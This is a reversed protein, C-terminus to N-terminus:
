QPAQDQRLHGTVPDTVIPARRDTPVDQTNDQATAPDLTPPDNTPMSEHANKHVTLTQTYGDTGIRHVTKDIHYLGSYQKSLGQIEVISKAQLNPDGVIRVSAKVTWQEAWIYDGHAQAAVSAPDTQPSMKQVTSGIVGEGAPNANNTFATPAANQSNANGLTTRTTEDNSGTAPIAKRNIPDYGSVTVVSPLGYCHSEEITFDLIEGYGYHYYWKRIPPRQFGKPHFHLTSEEIYFEYGIETALDILWQYVTRGGPDWSRPKEKALQQVCSNGQPTVGTVQTPNQANFTAGALEINLVGPFYGTQVLKFVLQARTINDETNPYPKNALIARSICGIKLKLFGGVSDIVFNKPGQIRGPYGFYFRVVNGKRWAPHEFFYFDHNDVELTLKEMQAIADEYEFSLVRESVNTMRDQIQGGSRPDSVGGLRGEQNFAIVTVVFGPSTQDYPM